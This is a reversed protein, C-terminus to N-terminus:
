VTESVLGKVLANAIKESSVDYTGAALKAKIEEVKDMRVDPAANIVENARAIERSRESIQVRDGAPQATTQEPSQKPKSVQTEQSVVDAKTQSIYENIKM